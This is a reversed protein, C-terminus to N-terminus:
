ARDHREREDMIGGTTPAITLRRPFRDAGRHVARAAEINSIHAADLEVYRAGAIAEAIERGEAPPTPWTTRASSSSRRVASARRDGRAPGHRAGRRLVRHLGRAVDRGADRAHARSDGARARPIRPTFWRELVADAIAELGGKRVTRSARTGSERAARDAARHQRAGAPRPARGRESRAVHRDHRGDVSRLLARSRDQACRAPWARRPRAADITYAGPTVSSQATVARTTVCARPLAATLAPIQPEWMALNTGLSNSLVLVRRAPRAARRSLQLARAARDDTTSTSAMTTKKGAERRRALARDVFRKRRVPTAAGPRAARDLETTSLHTTVRADAVLVERLHKRERVARACADSSWNTRARARRSARRAGDSVAEALILGHTIELNAAM